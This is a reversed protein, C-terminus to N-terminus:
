PYYELQSHHTESYTKSGVWVTHVSELRYHYGSAVYCRGGASALRGSQTSEEYTGDVDVWNSGVRKQVVMTVKAKTVTGDGTTAADYTTYGNSTNLDFSM